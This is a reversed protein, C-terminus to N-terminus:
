FREELNHLKNITNPYKKLMDILTFSATYTNLNNFLNQILANSEQLISYSINLILKLNSSKDLRISYNKKKLM